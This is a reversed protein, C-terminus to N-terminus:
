GLRMGLRMGSLPTTAGPIVAAVKIELRIAAIRSTSDSTDTTDRAQVKPNLLSTLSYATMLDGVKSGSLPTEHLEILSPTDGHPNLRRDLNSAWFTLLASGTEFADPLATPQYTGVLSAGSETAQATQGLISAGDETADAGALSILQALVSAQTNPWTSTITGLALDAPDNKCAVFVQLRRFTPSSGFNITALQTFDLGCTGGIASPSDAPGASASVACNTIALLYPVGAVPTIGTAHTYGTTVSTSSSETVYAPTISM